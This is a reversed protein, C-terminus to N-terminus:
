AEEAQPWVIVMDGDRVQRDWGGGVDRCESNILSFALGKKPKAWRAEAFADNVIHRVTAYDSEPVTIVIRKGDFRVTVDITPAKESEGM